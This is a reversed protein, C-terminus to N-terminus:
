WQVVQSAGSCESFVISTKIQIVRQQLPSHGTCQLTGLEQTWPIEWALINAHTATEKELPDEQGLSRIRTEWMTPLRKVTQAVLSAWPLAM